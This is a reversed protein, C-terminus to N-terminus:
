EEIAARVPGLAAGPDSGPHSPLPSPATAANLIGAPAALIKALHRAAAPRDVQATAEPGLAAVAQLFLLMNAADSRGQLRALPSQYSLSAEHGDLLIPPM